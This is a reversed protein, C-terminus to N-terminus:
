AQGIGEDDERNRPVKIGLIDARGRLGSRRPGNLQIRIRRFGLSGICSDLEPIVPVELAGLRCRSPRDLQVLIIRERVHVKCVYERIDSSVVFIGSGVMAGAVLMTADFLGLKQRFTGAAPQNSIASQTM